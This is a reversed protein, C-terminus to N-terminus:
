KQWSSLCCGEVKIEYEQAYTCIWLLTYFVWGWVVQWSISKSVALIYWSAATVNKKSIHEFFNVREGSHRLRRGVDLNLCGYFYLFGKKVVRTKLTCRTHTAHHGLSPLLCFWAITTLIDVTLELSQAYHCLGTELHPLQVKRLCHHTIMSWLSLASVPANSTVKCQQGLLVIFSRRQYLMVDRGGEDFFSSPRM